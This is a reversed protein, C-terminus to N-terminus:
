PRRPVAPPPPKAPSPTPTPTPTPNGSTPPNGRPLSNIPASGPAQEVLRFQVRRNRQRHPETDNPFLPVTLGYGHPVLRQGDIGHDVLWQYVAKARADSLRMNYDYGGESSTHGQIELKTVEPHAQLIALVQNLYVEAGPLMIASDFKFEIPAPLTVVQELTLPEGPRPPEDAIRDKDVELIDPCGDEDQVGNYDEPQDPCKDLDDPIGDGDRDNIRPAMARQPPEPEYGVTFIVRVAPSGPAQTLGAGIGAGARIGGAFHYRAGLMALIPSGLGRFADRGATRAAMDLELSTMLRQRAVPIFLGARGILETGQDSNVYNHEPRYRVGANAALRYGPGAYAATAVLEGGVSGDSTFSTESGVPIALDAAAGLQVGRATHDVGYLLVSGGLRADGVASTGASRLMLGAAVGSESSQAIAFPVAAHLEFRDRLGIAFDLYASLRTGVVEVGDNSSLRPVVRLLTNTYGLAANVSWVM